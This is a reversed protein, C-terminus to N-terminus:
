AADSPTPGRDHDLPHRRAALGAGARLDLIIQTEWGTNGSLRQSAPRLDLGLFEARMKLNRTAGGRQIAPLLRKVEGQVIPLDDLRAGDDDGGTRTVALQIDRVVFFEFPLANM